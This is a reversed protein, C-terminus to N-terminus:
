AEARVLKKDLLKSLKEGSKLIPELSQSLAIRIKDPTHCILGRNKSVVEINLEYTKDGDSDTITLITLQNVDTLPIKQRRYCFRYAFFNRVELTSKLEDLYTIRNSSILVLITASMVGLIILMPPPCGNESAYSGSSVAAFFSLFGFLFVHAFIQENLSHLRACEKFQKM